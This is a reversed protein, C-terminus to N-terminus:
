YCSVQDNYSLGRSNQESDSTFYESDADGQSQNQSPSPDANPVSIEQALIQESLKAVEFGDLPACFMAVVQLLGLLPYPGSIESAQPPDTRQGPDFHPLATAIRFFDSALLM